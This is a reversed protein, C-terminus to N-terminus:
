QSNVQPKTKNALPTSMEYFAGAKVFYDPIPQRGTGDQHMFKAEVKNTFPNYLIGICQPRGDASLWNTDAIIKAPIDPLMKAPLQKALPRPIRTDKLWRMAPGKLNAEVWEEPTVPPGSWVEKMEMPMFSFAHDGNGIPIKFGDPSEQAKAQLAQKMTTLGACFFNVLPMADDARSQTAGSPSAGPMTISQTIAPLLNGYIAMAGGYKKVISDAVSGIAM